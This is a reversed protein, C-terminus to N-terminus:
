LKLNKPKSITKENKSKSNMLFFKRKKFVVAPLPKKSMKQEKINRIVADVPSELMIPYTIIPIRMTQPTKKMTNPKM